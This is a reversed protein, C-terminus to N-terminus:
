WLLNTKRIFFLIWKTKNTIENPAKNKEKKFMNFISDVISSESTGTIREIKWINLITVEM